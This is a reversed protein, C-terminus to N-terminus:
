HNALMLSAVTTGPVLAEEFAEASVTGDAEPAVRTATFGEAELGAVCDLVAPHEVASTVVHRGAAARALAAGRLGLNVAETGGSTFIVERPRCGLVAATRERAVELLDRARRGEAHLSSPNGSTEALTRAMEERVAADLPTSAVHDLYIRAVPPHSAIPPGMARRPRM